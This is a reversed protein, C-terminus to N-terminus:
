YAYENYDNGAGEIAMDSRYWFEPVKKVSELRRLSSGRSIQSASRSLGSAARGVGQRLSKFRTIGPRQDPPLALFGDGEQVSQSRLHNKTSQSRSYRPRDSIASDELFNTAENTKDWSNRRSSSQGESQKPKRMDNMEFAQEEKPKDVFSFPSGSREIPDDAGLRAYNSKSGDNSDHLANSIKDVINHPTSEGLQQSPLPNDSTKRRRSLSRFLSSISSTRSPNQPRKQKNNANHKILPTEGVTSAPSFPLTPARETIATPPEINMIPVGNTQLLPVNHELPPGALPSRPQHSSSSTSISDPRRARGCKTCKHRHGSPGAESSQVPAARPQARPQVNAMVARPFSSPPTSKRGGCKQCGHAPPSQPQSQVKEPSAVGNSADSTSVKHGGCKQCGGKTTVPSQYDQKEYTPPMAGAYMDQAVKVKRPKAAAEDEHGPYPKGDLKRLDTSKRPESSMKNVTSGKQHVARALTRPNGEERFRSDIGTSDIPSVPSSVFHSSSSSAHPTHTPTRFPNSQQSLTSQHAAHPASRVQSPIDVRHFPNSSRSPGAAQASSTPGSASVPFTPLTSRPLKASM